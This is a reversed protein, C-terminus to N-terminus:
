EQIEDNRVTKRWTYKKGPRDNRELWGENRLNVFVDKMQNESKIGTLRRAIQNTIEDNNKLYEMVIQEPSDLSEHRLLVLVSNDREFIEPQKLRLKEMAEFATNLGEGVDKNPPNKFKNILRVLKPNRAFQNEIINDVTIHGPLKGPSEIELRNDFIRIQIDTTINYDRHLVANTLIEHLANEPYEIDVLGKPTLKQIKEVEIKVRKVADYILNYVPGEVTIPDFALYDREAEDDTKYRLIKVASRKSLIAQPNDSFLLISAVSPRDKIILRQKILWNEPETNPVIDLLFSIITASNAIEDVTIDNVISDEFSQLGKDYKLQEIREGEIRLNQANKRIYCRQDTSYVIGSHKFITLKLILNLDEAQLFEFEYLGGLPAVENLVQFIPNAAEVNTFGDVKRANRDETPGEAIGVYIEGGGSNAFGSISQSLKAPTIQASKVDVFHSEQISLLVDLQQSDIPTIGNRM